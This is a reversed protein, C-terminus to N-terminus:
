EGPTDVTLYVVTREKGPPNENLDSTCCFIFVIEDSKFAAWSFYAAACTTLWGSSRFSSPRGRVSIWSSNSSFPLTM